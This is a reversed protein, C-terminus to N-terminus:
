VSTLIDLIASFISSSISFSVTSKLGLKSSLNTSGVTRGVLIGCNNTFPPEPIATPIADFIGGCLKLSTIEAVIAYISLLSIVIFSSICYTFPGSKGVPAIINPTDPISSAYLVPLPLNIIRPSAEM